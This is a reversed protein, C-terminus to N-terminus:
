EGRIAMNNELEFLLTKPDHINSTIEQTKRHKFFEHYAGADKRGDAVVKNFARIMEISHTTAFLQVNFAAALEFIRDWLAAHASYHIGNEIEDILLISNKNNIMKLIFYSVKNIADGFLGIPLFDNSSTRIYISPQGISITKVETIGADIVQFAQLVRSSLGNLDAKDFEEALATSSVRFSSPIFHIYKPNPLNIGKSILGKNYAILSASIGKEGNLKYELHLTSRKAEKNSLLERIEQFKVDDKNDNDEESIFKVFDEVVEDCRLMLSINNGEENELRLSAEKTKKDYFLNDWAREPMEKMFSFDIQRFRRLLEVSTPRPSTNFFIAELFATKGSNNKGGILNIRKFGKFNSNRFCRFNKINVNKIM